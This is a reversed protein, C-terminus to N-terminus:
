GALADLATRIGSMVSKMYAPRPPDWGPFMDSFLPSFKITKKIPDVVYGFLGSFQVDNTWDNYLIITERADIIKERMGPEAKSIDSYALEVTEPSIGETNVKPVERIVTWGAETYVKTRVMIETEYSAGDPYMRDIIEYCKTNLRAEEDMGAEMAAQDVEVASAPLGAMCVLLAAILAALYKKM